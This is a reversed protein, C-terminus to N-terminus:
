QVRCDPLRRKLAATGDPTISTHVVTLTRLNTLGALPGVSKDTVRECQYLSLYELNPAKGAIETVFEDTVPLGQVGLSRLRGGRDAVFARVGEATVGTGEVTLGTLTKSRTFEKLGADGVQKAGRLALTELRPLTALEKLGADTVKAAGAMDLSKLATLRTLERVGADTVQRCSWLNVEELATANALERLGADTHAMQKPLALRRLRTLRGVHRLGRETLGPLMLLNLSELTTIKEVEALADETMGKGGIALDVLRPEKTFPKLGAATPQPCMQLVLRRLNRMGALHALGADTIHGCSPFSLSELAPHRSLVELGKDTIPGSGVLTRLSKFALLKEAVADTLLNGTLDYLSLCELNPVAALEAVFAAVDGVRTPSRPDVLVSVRRLSRLRGLQKLAGPAVKPGVCVQLDYEFPLDPLKAVIEPTLERPLWFQHYIAEPSGTEKFYGGGVAEYAKRAAALEAPTPARRASEGKPVPAAAAVPGRGATAACAIIIAWSRLLTSRM